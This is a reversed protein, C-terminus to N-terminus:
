IEGDGDYLFKKRTSQNQPDIESKGWKMMRLEDDVYFRM